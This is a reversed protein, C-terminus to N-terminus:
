ALEPETVARFRASGRWTAGDRDRRIDADVFRLNVLHHGDPSLSAAELVSRVVALIEACDRKGEGRSWARLVLFHEDGAETGTSWDRGEREGFAVLPYTAERPVSDYVRPGGLIALVSPDNVLLTYLAAQLAHGADSM